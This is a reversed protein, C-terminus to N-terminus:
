GLGRGSMGSRFSKSASSRSNVDDGRTYSTRPCACARDAAAAVVQRRACHGGHHFSILRTSRGTSSDLSAIIFTSALMSTAADISEPQILLLWGEAGAFVM